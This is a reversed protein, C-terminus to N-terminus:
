LKYKAQMVVGYVVHLVGFGLGWFLLGYGIYYTALLGLAVELLGLSKIESLTYKSASVLGLGYFILTLPAVIGIYGKSLLILSLIGGSLLPIALATLLRKTQHDWVSQGQRKAQRSTFFIGAGISLVLTTVAIGLLSLLSGTTMHASRLGLYNQNAYVTQYAAYVGCLAFLGASVGSWGSLSIFRSSKNMIDRIDKLDEKYQEEKM